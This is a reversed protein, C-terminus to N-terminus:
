QLFDLLKVIAETTDLILVRKEPEVLLTVSIFGREPTRRHGTVHSKAHLQISLVQCSTDAKNRKIAADLESRLAKAPTKAKWDGWQHQECSM